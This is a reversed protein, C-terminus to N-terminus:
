AKKNDGSTVERARASMSPVSRQILERLKREIEQASEYESIFVRKFGIYDTFALGTSFIIDPKELTVTKIRSYPLNLSVRTKQVGLSPEEVIIIRKETFVMYVYEDNLWGDYSELINEDVGICKKIDLM